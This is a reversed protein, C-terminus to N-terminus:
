PKRLRELEERLRAVEAEAAKRAEAETKRAEEAAKRARAERAARGEAKRQAAEAAKRGAEEESSTLLLQGTASDIIDIRRGNPSVAFLLGTTKSALRGKEDPEIKRYRGRRGDLRYGTLQFRQQTARSPPDVILYEPIGARQYVAVKDVHDALRIRSDTPSAVEIVLCPRTRERSVDYSGGEPEKDRVGRIVAVDPSPNSLGPIQWNMIVDFSVLVDDHPEFFRSLRDYLSTAIRGHPFGQVMQDGIQPNLFDEVTLRTDRLQLSGDPLSVWRLLRPGSLEDDPLGAAAEHDEAVPARRVPEAM